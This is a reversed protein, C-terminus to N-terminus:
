QGGDREAEYERLCDVIVKNMAPFENEAFNNVWDMIKRRIADQDTWNDFDSDDM